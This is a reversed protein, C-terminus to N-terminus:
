WRLTSPGPGPKEPNLGSYPLLSGDLAMKARRAANRVIEPLAPHVYITALMDDLTAKMSMYAIPMHILDSAEPGVVHAGILRRSAKDFILKCFGHDSLRAMGMASKEYPNVGAVYGIDRRRCEEETLGVGAVPPSSFVAHPMPPYEIPGRAAGAFVTRFLYEGEFNVSHRFFYRGICDGFAYVGEVATMLGGDVEIFGTEGTRVDTNELGLTDANSTVGTAVLLADARLDETRGQGDSVTLRFDRGDYGAELPKVGLRARYKKMFVRAFEAAVEGDERRLFRSRVVFDVESGLAGYAHGLEVAIYSAGIVILKKPLRTNRLAETSTWFPTGELGPIAPVSPRSGVAIFIKPATLQESNVEVVYNSVFRAAGHFYDMNPNKAYGAAIGDSDQDVSGSIRKVLKEFDVTFEPNNLIDFRRAGRIEQAVDAPHILMKSPICGRNLCTGGPRDKEVVAVKLGLGAAPSSIKAGGGSGIVIVDYKKM